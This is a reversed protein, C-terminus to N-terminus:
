EARLATIPNVKTARCAPLLCAAMTLAFLGAVVVGFWLWDTGPYGPMISACLRVAGIGGAIGIVTGILALRLGQRLILKLVDGPEAGLALRLGIERTRQQVIRAIVGYVGLAALLMGLVSFISLSFSVTAFGASVLEIDARVPSLNFIALDPDLQQVATRLTRALTAPNGTARVVLWPWSAPAQAIPRYFEFAQHLTYNTAPQSDHVIGVIELPEPHNNGGVVIRHGIPDQGPWLQRSMTENIVAVPPSGDRDAATFVRGRLLSLGITAFYDSSVNNLMASLPSNPAGAAPADLSVFQPSGGFTPPSQTIAAHEVGPLGVLNTELRQIFQRRSEDTGYKSWPLAVAGTILRDPQWGLDRHTLQTLGRTFFSASVLLVLSLVIESVILADRLRHRSRDATSSGASLKLARNVDTRSALLAPLLGFAVGTLVALAVAFGLVRWDLVVILHESRGLPIARGIVDNTWLAILLGLPIGAFALLLSETLLFRVLRAKSAGLALRIAYDREQQLARAFQLNALNACAILLVSVSLGMILWNIAAGPGQRRGSDLPSAHFRIGANIKPYARALNAAVTDLEAQATALTVGPKLRAYATIWATERVNGTGDDFIQLRWCDTPGWTLTDDAAPPMVGIITMPRGDLRLTRGLASPDGNYRHMWTRYSLILVDDKGKHWDAETFVRGLLPSLGLLTFFDPTAGAAMVQEAPEGSAALSAPGAGEAAVASFNTVAARLDLFNAPSFNPSPNQPNVVSLRVLQQADPYALPRFMIANLVSFTSTNLGIGLALTLLVAAVFGPSKALSRLAFRLDSLM